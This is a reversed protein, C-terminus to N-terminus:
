KACTEMEGKSEVNKQSYSSFRNFGRQYREDMAPTNGLITVLYPLDQHFEVNPQNNQPFSKTGVLGLM